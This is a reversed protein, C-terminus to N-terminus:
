RRVTASARRVCELFSRLSKSQRGERYCLFTTYRLAEGGNFPVKRVNQQRSYGQALHLYRPNQEIMHNILYEDSHAESSIKVRNTAIGRTKCALEFLSLSNIPDKQM